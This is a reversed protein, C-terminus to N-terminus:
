YHLKKEFCLSNEIGAYPGYNPIRTYGAKEYLATAEPQRKGTELVCTNYHLENAWTELATLVLTAIGKGRGEPTTYM